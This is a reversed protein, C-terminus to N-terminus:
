ELHRVRYSTKESERLSKLVAHAAERLRETDIDSLLSKTQAHAELIRLRLSPMFWPVEDAWWNGFTSPVTAMLLQRTRAADAPDAHEAKPDPFFHFEGQQLGDLWRCQPTQELPLEDDLHLAMEHFLMNATFRLRDRPLKRPLAQLSRLLAQTFPSHQEPGDSALESERSAT